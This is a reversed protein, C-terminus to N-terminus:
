QKLPVTETQCCSFTRSIQLSVVLIDKVSSFQVSFIALTTFKIHHTKQQQQQQKGCHFFFFLFFHYCIAIQFKFFLITLRVVDLHIFCLRYRNSGTLIWFTMEHQNYIFSELLYYVPIFPPWSNRKLFGQM